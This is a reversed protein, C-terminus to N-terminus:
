PTTFGFVSPISIRLAALAEADSMRQSAVEDAATHVLGLFSGALWSPPVRREFEGAEQGRTALLALRDLIPGHFQQPTKGAIESLQQGLASVVHAHEGVTEWWAPILAMLQEGPDTGSELAEDIARVARDLAREAVAELLSERSPFHAYITQRSLGSAKAIENMAADPRASFVGVAADLIAEVNRTADSRKGGTKSV